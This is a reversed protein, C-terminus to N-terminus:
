KLTSEVAEYLTAILKFSPRGIDLFGTDATLIFKLCRETSVTKKEATALNHFFFGGPVKGRRFLRM